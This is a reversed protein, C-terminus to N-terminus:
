GRRVEQRDAWEEVWRPADGFDEGAKAVIFVDGVIPQNLPGVSETLFREALINRPLGKLLGEENVVLIAGERASTPRVWVTQIYGGVIKQFDELKSPSGIRVQGQTTLIIARPM